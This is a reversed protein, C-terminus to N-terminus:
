YIYVICRSGCVSHQLNDKMHSELFSWLEVIERQTDTFKPKKPLGTRVDVFKGYDNRRNIFWRM